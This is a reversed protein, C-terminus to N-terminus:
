DGSHSGKKDKDDDAQPLQFSGATDQPSVTTARVVTAVSILGLSSVVAAAIAARQTKKSMALKSM